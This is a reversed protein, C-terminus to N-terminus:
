LRKEIIGLSMELEKEFSVGGDEGIKAWGKAKRNSGFESINCLKAIRTGFQIATKKASALDPFGLQEILRRLLKKTLDPKSM